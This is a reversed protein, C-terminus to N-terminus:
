ARHPLGGAAVAEPYTPIGPTMKEIRTAAKPTATSTTSTPSAAPSRRHSPRPACLSNTVFCNNFRVGENALRDLNPTHLIKNGYCSM